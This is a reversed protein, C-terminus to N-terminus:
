AAKSGYTPRDALYQRIESERWGVRKPSLRVNRPFWGAAMGDYVTSSALGTIARVDRLKLMRDLNDTM